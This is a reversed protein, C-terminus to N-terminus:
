VLCRSHVARATTIRTVQSPLVTVRYMFTTGQRGGVGHEARPESLSCPVIRAGDNNDNTPTRIPTSEMRSSRADEDSCIRQLSIKIM